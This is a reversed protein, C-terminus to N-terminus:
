NQLYTAPLGFEFYASSNVGSILAYLNSNTASLLYFTSNELTKIGAASSQLMTKEVSFFDEFGAFRFSTNSYYASLNNEMTILKNVNSSDNLNVGTVVIVIQAQGSSNGSRSGFQQTMLENAQYSQSNSPIMNNGFNYNVNNFFGLASPAMLVFLAIWFAVVLIKNRKKSVKKGLAYFKSEFM